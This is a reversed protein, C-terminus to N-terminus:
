NHVYSQNQTGALDYYNLIYSSCISIEEYPNVNM